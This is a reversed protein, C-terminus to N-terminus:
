PHWTPQTTMGGLAQLVDPLLRQLEGTALAVDADFSKDQKDAVGEFVVDLYALKKLQLTETLVFSLRGDWTLALRTPRKGAQIHRGVEDIDLAHRAYRVVARSEDPAKLECDRDVVFGAPPEQTALWEAMAAAASMQTELPALQLGELAQALSSLVADSKASSAADVVLWQGQRDIWVWVSAQKAFAMPLLELRVEEKLERAERKGPKRGETAEIHDLREQLKRKLVSAPLVKSEVMYKLIWQGGVSEILPGHAEGRPEVWGMSRDQTAGCEVFRQGDLAQEAQALSMKWPQTLRYVMLNKFM